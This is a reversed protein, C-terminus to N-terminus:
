GRLGLFEFLDEVPDDRDEIIKWGERLSFVKDFGFRFRVLDGFLQGLFDQEFKYEHYEKLLSANKKMDMDALAKEQEKVLFKLREENAKFRNYRYVVLKKMEDTMEGLVVEGEKVPELGMIKPDFASLDVAEVAEVLERLTM